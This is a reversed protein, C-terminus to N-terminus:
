YFFPASRKTGVFVYHSLRGGEVGAFRERDDGAPGDNGFTIVRVQCGFGIRVVWEADVFDVRSPV